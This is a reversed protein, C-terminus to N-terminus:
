IFLDDAAAGGINALLAKVAEKSQASTKFKVNMKDYARPLIAAPVPPNEMRAIKQAVKEVDENLEEVSEKVEENVEAVFEPYQAYFDSRVFMGAMPFDEGTVEQYIESISALVKVPKNVANAVTGTIAPQAFVATTPASEATASVFQQQIATADRGSLTVDVEAQTFLYQATKGPIAAEGITLVEKQAFQAMFEQLSACEARTKLTSDNTVLYLVGWSTVNMLKYDYRTDGNKYAAHVANGVNIPAIIFDAQGSIMKERVNNETIVEYTIKVDEVDDGWMDALAVFPAGTPAVISVDTPVENTPACASLVFPFVCSLAGILLATLIKKLKM